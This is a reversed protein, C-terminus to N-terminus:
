QPNSGCDGLSKPEEGASTIDDYYEKVSQLYEENLGIDDSLDKWEPNFGKILDEKWERHWKKIQKERRIATTMDQCIEFYVLNDTKYKDTFGKNIHLKHEAIRRKLDNTVGTYLTTKHKNTLIYVFGQKSM